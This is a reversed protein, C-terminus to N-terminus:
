CTKDTIACVSRVRSPDEFMSLVAETLRELLLEHSKTYWGTFWNDKMYKWLREIPNFDPSYPPLYMPKINHWDLAVVKHWSANDLVMVTPVGKTHKDFENLFAQFVASDVHSFILAMFDGTDPEVAGIVSQRIHRGTIPCVPKTGRKAYQAKPRPDALFGAEDMFWVQVSEDVLIQHLKDLFESRKEPDREPSEPRPVLRRYDARRVMRTLTSYGVPKELTSNVKGLLKRLTWHSEDAAQPNELSWLVQALEDESILRPAGTRPKTALADVGGENFLRTYRAITRETVMALMASERVTYGLLRFRIAQLRKLFDRDATSRIVEELSELDINEPNPASYITM